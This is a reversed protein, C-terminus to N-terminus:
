CDSGASIALARALPRKRKAVVCRMLGSVPFEFHGDPVDEILVGEVDKRKRVADVIQWEHRPLEARRAQEVFLADRRSGDHDLFAVRRQAKNRRRRTAARALSGRFVPPADTREHQRV